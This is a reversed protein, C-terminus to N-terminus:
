NSNLYKLFSNVRHTASHICRYEFLKEFLFGKELLKNIGITYFIHNKKAM